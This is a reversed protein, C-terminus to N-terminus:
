LNRADKIPVQITIPAQQVFNLTLSISGGVNLPEKLGLLMVHKGGPAFQVSDDAAIEIGEQIQVMQMMGDSMNMDHLQAEEAVNSPVQASLLTLPEQANNNLTLYVAGTQALAFTARAWAGEVNVDSQSVTASDDSSMDNPAKSCGSLISVTILFATLLPWRKAQM